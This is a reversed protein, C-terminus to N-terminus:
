KRKLKIEFDTNTKGKIIDMLDYQFVVKRTDKEIMSEGVVSKVNKPLHIITTYTGGDGMLMALGANAEANLEPKRFITTKRSFLKKGVKYEAKSEGFDMGLEADEKQSDGLVNVLHNLEDLSAFDFRMGSNLFGDKRKGKMFIKMKEMMAKEKPDTISAIANEDSFSTDVEEGFDAWLEDEIKKLKEEPSKNTSTTDFAAFLEMSKKMGPIIDSYVAYQGSGDENLHIEETINDCSVMLYAALCIFLFKILRM